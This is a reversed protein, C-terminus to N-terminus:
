QVADYNTYDMLRINPFSDTKHVGNYLIQPPLSSALYVYKCIAYIKCQYYVYKHGKFLLPPTGLLHYPVQRRVQMRMTLDIVAYIRISGCNQGRVGKCNVGIAAM